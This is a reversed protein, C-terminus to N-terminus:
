EEEGVWFVLLFFILSSSPRLLLPNISNCPPIRSKSEKATFFHEFFHQLYYLFFSQFIFESTFPGELFDSISLSAPFLGRFESSSNENLVFICSPFLAKTLERSLDLTGLHLPLNNGPLLVEVDHHNQCSAAVVYLCTQKM